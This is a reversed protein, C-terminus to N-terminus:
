GVFQGEPAVAVGGYQVARIPTLKLTVRWAPWGLATVTTRVEFVIPTTEAGDSYAEVTDFTTASLVTDVTFTRDNGDIIGSFVTGSAPTAGSTVTFVGPATITASFEVTNSSGPLSPMSNSALLRQEFRITGGSPNSIQVVPATMSPDSYVAPATDNGTTLPWGGLSVYDDRLSSLYHPLGRGAGRVTMALYCGSDMYSVQPSLMSVSGSRAYIPLFSPNAAPNNAVASAYTPTRADYAWPLYPSFTIDAARFPTVTLDAVTVALNGIEAPIWGFPIDIEYWANDSYTGDRADCRRTNAGDARLSDVQLTWFESEQALSPTEGLARTATGGGLYQPPRMRKFAQEAM